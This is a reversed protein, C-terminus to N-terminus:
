CVLGTGSLSLLAALVRVEAKQCSMGELNAFRERMFLSRDRLASKIGETEEKWLAYSEGGEVPPRVLCDVGIQGSAPPCLGVSSIKNIQALVDEDINVLEM